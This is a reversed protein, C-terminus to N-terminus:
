EARLPRALLETMARAATVEGALLREMQFAIPTDVGHKRALAVAAHTTRVGEAVQAMGELIRPLREGKGLAVGVTRNRSLEGTCTLVLDGVGSLGLLTERRGGMAVALRSMEALGRSMLAARPNYGLGLGTAVGVALAMVNKLSGGIEVGVVDENTYVRFGPGSLRAQVAAAADPARSAAVIASPEGVAVERAFTPGSIVTLERSAGPVVAEIVESMRLLTDEELGKTASVLRQKGGLHPGLEEMVGRLFQSPVALVVLEASAAVDLAGTPEIGDPLQIGPLFTENVRRERISAAVDDERCWLSVSESKDAFLKALATGWAGAGVVAVSM